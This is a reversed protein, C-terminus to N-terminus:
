EKPSHQRSVDNTANELWGLANRAECKERLQAVVDAYSMEGRSARLLNIPVNHFVDALAFCTYNMKEYSDARIELFARYMLKLIYEEDTM